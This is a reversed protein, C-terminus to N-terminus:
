KTKKFINSVKTVTASSSGDELMLAVIMKPNEVNYAVFWGNEKGKEGQAAKAYEATGTKGAIPYGDIKGGRATGKSDEVVKRLATKMKEANEASILNEKWTQGKEANLELVPKIMKGNHIIATYTSALHVVNMEVQGQGYSSDALAIDSDIDGITSPYMPYLYDMEEEFGFKKLGDMFKDKGLELTTQAFYINDSYILAKELDIPVGYDSVRKVKYNGWSADKGWTLGNIKLTTTWDTTGAELGIAATIPKLVSGPAFTNNFRNLMPNYPNDEIEAWQDNSPGLTLINPDYSPSSVLALTEGTNPDLATATGPEGNLENYVLTQLSSDITLKVDEGDQAVKEALVVQTDDTKNIIIKAGPEGRLRDELVLELGRRGILDNSSYGKGKNKELDEATVPAINGTLHAAAEGLPYVRAQVERNRAAAIDKLENLTAIDDAPVKKIPVFHDPQVWSAGLAKEIKEVDIGLIEAVQEMVEAENGEMAAPVLGIEYATGNEALANGNRDLIAGRKPKTTSVSITDGAQLQPFIHTTDWQIFWDYKEEDMKEQIVGVQQDFTIEGAISDMTVSYPIEVQKAEEDEGTEDQKTFTIHVNEIELDEYIKTYRNTFDEKSISVKVDTSLYEYMDAFKQEQWLEVYQTFRDDPQPEKVEKKEEKDSCGVLVLTFIICFTLLLYKKM